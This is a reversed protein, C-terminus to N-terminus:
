VNQKVLGKFFIESKIIHLVQPKQLNQILVIKINREDIEEWCLHFYMGTRKRQTTKQLGSLTSLFVSYPSSIHFPNQLGWDEDQSPLVLHSHRGASSRSTAIPALVAYVVLFTFWLRFRMDIMNFCFFNNYPYVFFFM